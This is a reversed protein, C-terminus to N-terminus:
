NRESARFNTHNTRGILDGNIENFVNRSSEHSEHAFFIKTSLFFLELVFFMRWSLIMGLIGTAYVGEALFFAPM